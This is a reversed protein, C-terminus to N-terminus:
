TKVVLGQGTPLELIVLGWNAMVRDATEKQKRYQKWGYDDFIIFGGPSIRDFLFELAGQEARPSNMDLHLFAIKTPAIENLIDPVVGKTVIVFPKRSFRRRVDEEIGPSNYERNIFNFFDGSDPFDDKSSYKPEQGAFTDYLYFRKGASQLDVMETIMWTMDGRFVGCEVFDGPLRICSKAAWILTNYRWSIGDPSEYQNAGTSSDAQKLAARFTADDRFEASKDLTLLRDGWFLGHHHPRIIERLVRDFVKAAEQPSTARACIADLLADLSKSQIKASNPMVPNVQNVAGILDGLKDNLLRQQNDLAAIVERLAKHILRLQEEDRASARQRLARLKAIPGM